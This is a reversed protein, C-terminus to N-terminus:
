KKEGSCTQFKWFQKICAPIKRANKGKKCFSWFYKRLKLIRQSFYNPCRKSCVKPQAGYKWLEYGNLYCRALPPCWPAWGPAPRGWLDASGPGVAGPGWSRWCSKSQQPRGRRPHMRWTEKLYIGLSPHQAREHECVWECERECEQESKWQIKAWTQNCPIERDNKKSCSQGCM